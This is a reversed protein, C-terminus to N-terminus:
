SALHGHQAELVPAVPGESGVEHICGAAVNCVEAQAAPGPEGGSARASARTRDLEAGAEEGRGGDASSALGPGSAWPLPM